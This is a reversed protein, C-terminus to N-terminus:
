TRVQDFESARCSGLTFNDPYGSQDYFTPYECSTNVASSPQFDHYVRESKWMYDYEDWTFPSSANEYETFAILDGMTALTNDLIVYM